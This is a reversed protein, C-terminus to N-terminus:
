HGLVDQLSVSNINLCTCTGASGLTGVRFAPLHTRVFDFGTHNVLVLLYCDPGEWGLVRHLAVSISEVRRVAADDDRAVGARCLVRYVSAVAAINQDVLCPRHFHEPFQLKLYMVMAGAGLSRIMEKDLLEPTWEGDLNIVWNSREESHVIDGVCVVNIRGQQLLEFVQKEPFPGEVLQASLIDMLMGRRAHLDSLHLLSGSKSLVNVTAKLAALYTEPLELQDRNAFAHLTELTRAPHESPNLTTM